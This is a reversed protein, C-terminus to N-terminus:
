GGNICAHEHARERKGLSGPEPEPIVQSWRHVEVSEVVEGSATYPEHQIFDEVAQKDTFQTLLIM